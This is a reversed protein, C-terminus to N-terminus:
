KKRYQGKKWSKQGGAKKMGVEIGNKFSELVKKKLLCSMAREMGEATGGRELIVRMEKVTQELYNTKM